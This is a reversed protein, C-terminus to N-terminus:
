YVCTTGMIDQLWANDCM